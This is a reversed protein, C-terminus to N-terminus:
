QYGWVGGSTGIDIFTSGLEKVKEARRKTDSWKSNRGDIIISGKPILTLWIDLESDVVDSPIMIWIIIQDSGFASIVEEKTYAGIIGLKKIEDIPGSSRNHAIVIHGGEHLKSIIQSGMRGLGVISIKM